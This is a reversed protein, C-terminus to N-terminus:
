LRPTVPSTWRVNGAFRNSQLDIEGLLLSGFAVTHHDDATETIGIYEGTLARTLFYLAGQYRV